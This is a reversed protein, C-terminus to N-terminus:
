RLEMADDRITVTGIRSLFSQGMLSVPLGREAVMAEVGDATIPGLAVRQLRVPRLRIAGGAGIGKATFAGEGLGARRADKRTLVIESAGTDVLFRVPTGNVTAEAYFHGDRARDLRASGVGNGIAPTVPSTARVPVPSPRSADAPPASRMAVAALGGLGLLLVGLGKVM